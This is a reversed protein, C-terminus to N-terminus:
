WVGPILGRVRAKYDEFERGFRQRLVREETRTRIETGILFVVLAVAFRPLPTLLFGSALLLGLMSTYIPHRVIAYPGSQVLVHDENVGAALRWQKGLAPIALWMLWVAIGGCIFGLTIRWPEGPPNRWGTGVFLIPYAASQLLMGAISVNVTQARKVNKTRARLVFVPIVWLVWVILLGWLTVSM